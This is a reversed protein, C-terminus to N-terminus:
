QFGFSLWFMGFKAEGAAIYTVKVSQLTAVLRALHSPSFFVVSLRGPPILRTSPGMNGGVTFSERLPVPIYIYICIHVAHTYIYVYTRIHTYMHIYIYIYTHTHCVPGWSLNM